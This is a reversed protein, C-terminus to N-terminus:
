AAAGKMAEANAEAIRQVLDDISAAADAPSTAGALRTTVYAAALQDLKNSIVKEMVTWQDRGTVIMAWQRALPANLATVNLLISDATPREPQPATPRETAPATVPAPEERKADIGNQLDEAIAAVGAARLANPDPSNLDM